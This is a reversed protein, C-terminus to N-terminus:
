SNPTMLWRKPQSFLTKSLDIFKVMHDKGNWGKSYISTLVSITTAARNSAYTNDLLKLMKFSKEIHSMCIRLALDGLANVIM